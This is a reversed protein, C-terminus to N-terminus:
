LKEQQCPTTSARELNRLFTRCHLLTQPNGFGGAKTIVPLDRNWHETVSFPVGPEIEQLLRLSNIGWAQLVARATAGGTAVLAGVDAAYPAVLRALASCLSTAQMNETGDKAALTVVVDHGASLAERLEPCHQRWKPEGALLDGTSILLAIEASSSILVEAQKQSVAAPTGIVFLTPGADFRRQLSIPETRVSDTTKPLYYALGASGAWVTGPGLAVTAEAIARLDNDTEADCILVDAREAANTMESSLGRNGSRVTKLDLL